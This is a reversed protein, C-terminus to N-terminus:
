IGTRSLVCIFDNITVRVWNINVKRMVGAQPKNVKMEASFSRRCIVKYANM